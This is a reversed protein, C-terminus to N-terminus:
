LLAYDEKKIIIFENNVMKTNSTTNIVLTDSVSYNGALDVALVQIKYETNPTLNSITANRKTTAFASEGNIFIEYHKLGVNDTAKTWSLDIKNSSGIGNVKVTSPSVKDSETYDKQYVRVYDVEMSASTFNSAINGGLTGGMAINMIIYFEQDYPFYQNNSETYKPNQYIYYPVDNYLFTLKDPTWELSYLNFSDTVGDRYVTTGKGNGGNYKESHCTGLIYGERSGVHEMVDIEGSRPWGGYKSDTPMMWLAPWTGVGKPLKAMFEIRGYLIDVKKRSVIRTSTYGFGNYNEKKATIVLKGDKVIVNDSRDTYYQKEGNGWGWDGNGINYGWNDSNPAGDKEFEDSWVLQYGDGSVKKDINKFEEAITAVPKIDAVNSIVKLTVEKDFIIIGNELYIINYTYTGVMTLCNNEDTQVFGYWDLNSTVDTGDKKTATIGKLPEFKDGLKLTYESKLGEITPTEVTTPTDPIETCSTLGLIVLIVLLINNLLIKNISKKM